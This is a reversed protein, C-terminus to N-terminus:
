KYYFVFCSCLKLNLNEMKWKKEQGKQPVLSFPLSIGRWVGPQLYGIFNNQGGTMGGCGFCFFFPFFFFCVFLCFFLFFFFFFLFLKAEALSNMKLGNDANERIKM